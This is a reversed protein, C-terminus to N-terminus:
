SSARPLHVRFTSGVGLESELEIHGGHSAVVRHAIALGLGTGSVERIAPNESRFFERFLSQQDAESIGYGDDSCVVVAETEDAEVRVHVTSGRPSYKVANSVINVVVRDLQSQDGLVVVPGVTPEATLATQKALATASSLAVVATVVDGLDVQHLHPEPDPSAVGSLLLLDEVLAVLRQAGRGTAALSRSLTSGDADTVLDQILELNGVVSALPTRLEHSVTSILQGQYQDLARLRKVLNREQEHTRANLVARGLDHGVDVAEETEVRTWEAGNRRNLVVMGLCEEGAGLPVMLLSGIDPRALFADIQAIADPDGEIAPNVKLTNDGLVVEQARWAQKAVTEAIAIIGPGPALAAQPASDALLLWWLDDAVFSELVAARSRALVDELLLAGSAARVVRRAAEAVAVREALEERELAMLMARLAHVAYRELLVRREPGLRRGDAPEEVSLVGRLEGETDYLPLILRDNSNWAYPDVVREGPSGTSRQGPVFHVLGSDGSAAILDRLRQVPIISGLSNLRARDNGAVAVCEVKAGRVVRVCAVEFGAFVALGEAVLQFADVSLANPWSDAM